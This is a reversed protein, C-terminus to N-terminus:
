NDPTTQYEYEGRPHIFFDYKNFISIKDSGIYESQHNKLHMKMAAITLQNMAAQYNNPSSSSLSDLLINTATGLDEVDENNIIAGDYEYFGYSFRTGTTTWEWLHMTAAQNAWWRDNIDKRRDPEFQEKFIELASYPNAEDQEFVHVRIEPAGAIWEEVDGLDGFKM